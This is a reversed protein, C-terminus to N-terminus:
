NPVVSFFMSARFPKRVYGIAAGLTVWGTALGYAVGRLHAPAMEAIFVFTFNMIFGNALGTILRAFYLAVMNTTIVQMTIGVILLVMGM